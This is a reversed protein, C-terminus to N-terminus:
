SKPKLKLRPHLTVPATTGTQMATAAEEGRHRSEAAFVGALEMTAAKDCVAIDNNDRVYMDAGCSLLAKAEAANAFIVAYHLPTDKKADAANLNAGADALAKIVDAARYMAAFSLPTRGRDDQLETNAGADLLAKVSPVHKSMAAMHLATINEKGGRQNPDAGRALLWNLSDTGCHRAMWLLLPLEDHTAPISAGAEALFNMTEIRGMVAARLFPTEKKDNVVELVEKGYQELWKKMGPLGDDYGAYNIFDEIIQAPIKM